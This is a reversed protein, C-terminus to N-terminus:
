TKMLYRDFWRQTIRSARAGQGRRAITFLKSIKSFEPLRTGTLRKFVNTAITDVAANVDNSHNIADSALGHMVEGAHRFQNNLVEPVDVEHPSKTVLPFRKRMVSSEVFRAISEWMTKKEADTGDLLVHKLREISGQVVVSDSTADVLEAFDEVTGMREAINLCASTEALAGQVCQDAFKGAVSTADSAVMSPVMSVISREVARDTVLKAVNMDVGKYHEISKDISGLQSLIDPSSATIINNTVEDRVAASAGIKSALEPDELMHSLRQASEVVNVAPQVITSAAVASGDSDRIASALTPAINHIEEMPKGNLAPLADVARQAEAVLQEPSESVLAARKAVTDALRRQADLNPNYDAPADLVAQASQASTMASVAALRDTQPVGTGGAGAFHSPVFQDPRPHLGGGVWSILKCCHRLLMDVATTVAAYAGLQAVVRAVPSSASPLLKRAAASSTLLGFVRRYLLAHRLLRAVVSRGDAALMCSVFLINQIGSTRSSSDFWTHRHIARRVVSSGSLEEIGTFDTDGTSLRYLVFGVGFAFMTWYGEWSFIFRTVLRPLSQLAEDFKSAAVDTHKEIEADLAARCVRAADEAATSVRATSADSPAAYFARAQDFVDLTADISSFLANALRSMGRGTPQRLSHMLEVNVLRDIAANLGHLSRGVWARVNTIHRQLHPTDASVVGLTASSVDDKLSAMHDRVAGVYSQLLRAVKTPSMCDMFEGDRTLCVGDYCSTACPNRADSSVGLGSKVVATPVCPAWDRRAWPWGHTRTTCWPTDDHDDDAAHCEDRCPASPVYSLGIRTTSAGTPEM